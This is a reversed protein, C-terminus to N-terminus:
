RFNALLERRSRRMEDRYQANERFAMTEARERSSTVMVLEFDDGDLHERVEFRSSAIQEVYFPNM